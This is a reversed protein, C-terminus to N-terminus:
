TCFRRKCYQLHHGSQKGLRGSSFALPEPTEASPHADSRHDPLFLSVAAFVRTQITVYRSQCDLQTYALYVGMVNGSMWGLSSAEVLLLM